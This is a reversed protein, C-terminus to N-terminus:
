LKRNRRTPTRSRPKKPAKRSPPRGTVMGGLGMGVSKVGSFLGKGVAFVGDGVGTVVSEGGKIIGNGISVAGDGIGTIAAKGDGSTVAKGVGKSALIIGGGVLLAYHFSNTYFVLQISDFIPSILM